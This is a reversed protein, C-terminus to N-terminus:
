NSKKNKVNFYFHISTRRTREKDHRSNFSQNIPSGNKRFFKKNKYIPNLKYKSYSLGESKMNLDYQKFASNFNNILKMKMQKYEMDKKNKQNFVKNSKIQINKDNDDIITSKKDKIKDTTNYGTKSSHRISNKRESNRTKSSMSSFIRKNTRIFEDLEQNDKNDKSNNNNNKEFFKEKKIFQATSNHFRQKLYDNIDLNKKSNFLAKQNYMIKNLINNKKEEKNKKIYYSFQDSSGKLLNKIMQKKPLRNILLNEKEMIYSDIKKRNMFLKNDSNDKSNKVSDNYFNILKINSIYPITERDIYKSSKDKQESDNNSNIIPTNERDILNKDKDKNSSINNLNKLQSKISSIPNSSDISKFNNLYNKKNIEDFSKQGEKPYNSYNLSSLLNDLKSSFKNEQDKIKDDYELFIKKMNDDTEELKKHISDLDSFYKEYKSNLNLFKKENEDDHIGIKDMLENKLNNINNNIEDYKKEMEDINKQLNNKEDELKEEFTKILTNVKNDFTVLTDTAINKTSLIYTDIEAKYGKMMKELKTQINQINMVSMKDKFVNFTSISKIVYDIFDHFDRFKSKPGIVSPYSISENVTKKLSYIAENFNDTINELRQELNSAKFESSSKFEFLKDIREKQNQEANVSQSLEIIKESYAKIKSDMETFKLDYQDTSVKVKSLIKAEIEKLDKLNQNKFYIFDSQSILGPESIRKSTPETKKQNNDM